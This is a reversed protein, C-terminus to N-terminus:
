RILRGIRGWSPVRSRPPRSWYVCAARGIIDDAPVFGLFRGDRSNDRNDGLIFLGGDPVTKASDAVADRLIGILVGAWLLGALALNVRPLPLWVAVCSVCLTTVAHALYLM